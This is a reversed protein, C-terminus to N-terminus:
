GGSVVFFNRANEAFFQEIEQQIRREARTEGDRFVFAEARQISRTGPQPKIVVGEANPYGEVRKGANRGSTVRENGWIDIYGTDTEKARGVITTGSRKPNFAASQTYEAWYSEASTDALSGTGFSELIADTFFRCKATIYETGSANAAESSGSIVAGDIESDNSSLGGTAEKYFSQNLDDMVHLMHKKLAEYFGQADFRASIPM